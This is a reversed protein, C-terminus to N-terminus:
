QSLCAFPSQASKAPQMSFHELKEATVGVGDPITRRGDGACLAVKPVSLALERESLGGDGGGRTQIRSQLRNGHTLTRERKLSM